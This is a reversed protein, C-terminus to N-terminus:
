KPATAYEADLKDVVQKTIDARASDYLVKRQRIMDLLEEPSRADKVAYDEKYLVVDYGDPQAIKSIVTSMKSYFQETLRQHEAVMDKQKEETEVRIKVWETQLDKMREKYDKSDADLTKKIEAERDTLVKTRNDINKKLEEAQSKFSANLVKLEKSDRFVQPVNVVAVASRGAPVVPAATVTPAPPQAVGPTLLWVSAALMGLALLALIRNHM